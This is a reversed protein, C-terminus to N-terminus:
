VYKKLLDIIQDREVATILEKLTSYDAEFDSPVRYNDLQSIVADTTDFDFTEMCESITRLADKLLAEEIPPRSDEDAQAKPYCDKLPAELSRYMSLLHPTETKITEIDNNKGCQELQAALQSLDLAGILRSTSKLAHVQITYDNINGENFLEEIKQANQPLTDVYTKTIRVLIKEGGASEIAQRINLGPVKHLNAIVEDVDYEDKQKAAPKRAPAATSAASAESAETRVKSDHHSKHAEEESPPLMLASPLYRMLASELRVTDIPKSLYDNFGNGIYESRAGRVANATLAIIPVNRCKINDIEKLRKMTEIGDMEPMMHDVFIVDYKKRSACSIAELGGSATDIQIETKELLDCFIQLNIEMDDVVLVKADPARFGEKYALNAHNAMQLREKFSGIAENSIVKQNWEVTFISGDGKQSDVGISGNMNDVLKKVTSLGDKICGSAPLAASDNSNFYDRMEHLTEPTIGKGTDKISFTLCINDTDLRRYKIKFEISGVETFKIANDLLITIVQRIRIDDGFLLRPLSADNEVTVKLGKKDARQAVLFYCDNILSSIDYELPKIDTNNLDIDSFDLSENLVALLNYGSDHIGIAFNEIYDNIDERLIMENMNLINSLPTRIKHTIDAIFNGHERAANDLFEEHKKAYFDSVTRKWAETQIILLICAIIILLAGVFSLIPFEPKNTLHFISNIINALLGALLICLYVIRKNRYASANPIEIDTNQHLM